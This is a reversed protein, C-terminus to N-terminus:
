IGKVLGFTEFEWGIEGIQGHKARPFQSGPPSRNLYSVNNTMEMSRAGIGVSQFNNHVKVRQDRLGSPGTFMVPGSFPAWSQHAPLPASSDSATSQTSVSSMRRGSMERLEKQAFVGFVTKLICTNKAVSDKGTQQGYLRCIDSSVDQAHQPVDKLDDRGAASALAYLQFSPFMLPAVNEEQGLDDYYENVTTRLLAYVM